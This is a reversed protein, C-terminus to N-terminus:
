RGAADLRLLVVGEKWSLLSTCGEGEEVPCLLARLRGGRRGSPRAFAVRAGDPSWLVAGTAGRSDAIPRISAREPTVVVLRSSPVGGRERTLEVVALRATAPSWAGEAFARVRRPLSRAEGLVGRPRLPVVSAGRPAVRVLFRGDPSAGWVESPAVGVVAPPAEPSVIMSRLDDASSVLLEDGAWSLLGWRGASLVVDPRMRDLDFIVVEVEGRCAEAACARPGVPRLWALRRGSADWLPSVGPGLDVVGGTALDLLRLSPRAAFDEEGAAPRRGAEVVAIWDGRPAIHADPSPLRRLARDRGSDLHLARLTSGDLYLLSLPAEAGDTGRRSAAPAQGRGESTCASALLVALLAASAGRARVRM